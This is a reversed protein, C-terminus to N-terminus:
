QLFRGTGPQMDTLEFVFSGVKLTSKMLVPIKRGDDTLWLYVVGRAQYVGQHKTHLKIKITAFEGAATTVKERALVVVEITWNKGSDVVEINMRRGIPLDDKTRLVYLLSLGDLDEDHIALAEPPEENLRCVATKRAHDFETVRFRKKKGFSERISYSISQMLEPDFVSQVTDNVPFVRDMVGQTRGRVVFRMAQREDPLREAEITMTATGASFMRSWSIDYTLTEGPRFARIGAPQPALTQRSRDRLPALTQETGAPPGIMLESAGYQSAAFLLGPLLVCFAAVMRVVRRFGRNVPRNM